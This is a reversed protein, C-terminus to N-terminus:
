GTSAPRASTSRSLAGNLVPFTGENKWGGATRRQLRVTDTGPADITGHLAVLPRAGRLTRAEAPSKETSVRRLHFWTDRLGLRARIQPGTVITSGRSGVIRAKVVRPSVGRKLVKIGRFRGKVWSGLKAGLTARSFNSSGATTPPPTTM